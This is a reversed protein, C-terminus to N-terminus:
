KSNKKWKKWKRKVKLLDKVIDNMINVTDIPNDAVSVEHFDTAFHRSLEHGESVEVQFNFFVRM